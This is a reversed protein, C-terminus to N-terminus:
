DDNDRPRWGTRYKNALKLIPENQYEVNNNLRDIMEYLTNEDSYIKELTDWFLREEKRLIVENGHQRVMETKASKLLSFAVKESQWIDLPLEKQQEELFYYILILNFCEALQEASISMLKECLINEFQKVNLESLLKHGRGERYGIINIIEVQGTLNTDKFLQKILEVRKEEDVAKILRYTLISITRNVDIIDFLSTREREPIKPQLEFLYPILNLAHNFTFDEEYDILNNLISQIIQKPFENLLLKTKESNDMAQFLQQTKNHIILENNELKNFYLDLFVIHAVRHEKKWQKVFQYSYHHNSLYQEAAPFINEILAQLQKDNQVFDTILHRYTENTKDMPSNKNTTLADKIFYIQEFKQPYFLRIAELALIDVIQISDQIESITPVIALTYRRVDRMNKLNPKIIEYFVFAWRNKDLETIPYRSLVNDLSNFFQQHLLENSIKPLNFSIQVIKELYASGDIQSQESLAQEVRIRDFPLIYIINPFNATLRVLKFIEEIEKSSLRDIDDIIIIIPKEITNLKEIIKQKYEDLGEIRLSKTLYDLIAKIGKTIIPLNIPITPITISLWQITKQVIGSKVLTEAHSIWEGYKQFKDALENNKIRLKISLEIFFINILNNTDNFLWPNFEFITDAYQELEPKMLNIYSTKGSGWEGFIGVVLGQSCDVSFLSEAFKKASSKRNLSDDDSAQIPTDSILKNMKFGQM